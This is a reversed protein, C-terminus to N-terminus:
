SISEVSNDKPNVTMKMDKPENTYYIRKSELFDKNVEPKNTDVKYKQALLKFDSNSDYSRFFWTANLLQGDSKKFLLSLRSAPPNGRIYIWVVEGKSDGVEEQLDPAGIKEKANKVTVEQWKM